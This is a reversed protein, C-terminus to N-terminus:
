REAFRRMREIGKLINTETKEGLGKIDRLRGAQAAAELDAVSTIDLTEYLLKVTKPGVESIELIELLGPPLEALLEQHYACEGTDLLEEIKEAISAGVGSLSRLEERARLAAVEETLDAITDAAKEYARVKFVSEGKIELLSAIQAFVETIKRNTM